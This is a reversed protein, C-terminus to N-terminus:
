GVDRRRFGAAGAVTLAVAVLLLWWVPAWTMAAGPLRPVHSYPSVDMAWAPAQLVPGLFTVLLFGGVCAWAVAAARPLLGFLAVALGGVVWAAPVMVLAAGLVRPFQGALDHTALGHVLGAAAGLILLLAATGAFAFLLHSGMWPLRRVPTALVPEARLDTEESRLRLVASVTYLGALMAVLGLSTALYADVIGKEGGFKRLLDAAGGEVFDGVGSAASGVALGGVLFGAAWSLFTGRQLRWALAVPGRLAPAARAPGLRAALLGAGVDRRGNLRWAVVALLVTVVLPVALVWWRDGAYPRVLQGWAIPSLWRLWGIGSSDAIARVLFAAGLAGAAIGTASRSSETLQAAVAAIAGFTLGAGAFALGLALSSPGPDPMSVAVLGALVLNALVALLLASGLRASRGVVTARLLELRGTEEDTRTHRIVLFITMLGALVGYFTMLRWATLAGVSSGFADGYIAAFTPNGNAAVLLADRDAQEPYVGAFSSASGAVSAVLVVIWVSLRVRDLRLSLRLLPLVGSM